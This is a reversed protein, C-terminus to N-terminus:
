IKKFEQVIRFKKLDMRSKIVTIDKFGGLLSPLEENFVCNCGAIVEKLILNNDFNNFYLGNELNLESLFYSFRVEEEYDWSSFKTRILKDFFSEIQKDDQPLKDFPFLPRDETYEVKIAANDPLEFGLAFGIHKEAYHSWLLPNHWNESFCLIGYKKSIRSKWETFINKAEQNSNSFGPYFEFPDNLKDIISVKIRKNKLAELAYKKSLFHYLRM